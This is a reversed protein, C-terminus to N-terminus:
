FSNDGISLELISTKITYRLLHELSDRKMDKTYMGIPIVCLRTENEIMCSVAKNMDKFRVYDRCTHEEVDPANLCVIGLVLYYFYQNRSPTGVTSYVISGREIM